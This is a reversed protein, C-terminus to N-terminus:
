TAPENKNTALSVTSLSGVVFFGIFYGIGFSILSQVVVVVLWSIDEPPRMTARLLLDALSWLVITVVWPKM